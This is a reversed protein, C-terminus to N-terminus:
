LEEHDDQDGVDEVHTKKSSPTDRSAMEEAASIFHASTNVIVMVYLPQLIAKYVHYDGM